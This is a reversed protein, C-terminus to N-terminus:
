TLVFSLQKARNYICFFGGFFCLCFVLNWVLMNSYLYFHRKIWQIGEFHKETKVKTLFLQELSKIASKFSVLRLYLLYSITLALDSPTLVKTEKYNTFLHLSLLCLKIISQLKEKDVLGSWIHCHDATHRCSFSKRHRPPSNLRNQHLHPFTYLNTPFFLLNKEM